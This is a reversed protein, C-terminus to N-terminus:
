AAEFLRIEVRSEEEIVQIVHQKMRQVDKENINYSKGFEEFSPGKEPVDCTMEIPSEGGLFKPVNEIGIEASASELDRVHIRSSVSDPLAKMFLSIVPTCFRPLGWIWFSHLTMPYHTMVLQVSTTMIKLDIQAMGMGTMDFIIIPKLGVIGDEYEEAFKTIMRDMGFTVSDIVAKRVASGLNRYRNARICAILRGNTIAFTFIKAKYFEVPFDSLQMRNIGFERRWRLTRRIRRAARDVNVPGDSGYNEDIMLFRKIMDDSREIREIDLKDITENNESILEFVRSRVLAITESNLTRM